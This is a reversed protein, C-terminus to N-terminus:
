AKRKSHRLIPVVEIRQDRSLVKEVDIRKDAPPRGAVGEVTRATGLLLQHLRNVNGFLAQANSGLCLGSAIARNVFEITKALLFEADKEMQQRDAKNPNPRNLRNWSLHVTGQHIADLTRRLRKMTPRDARARANTQRQVQSFDAAIMDTGKSKSQRFFELLLRSKLRIVDQAIQPFGWELNPLDSFLYRIDRFALASALMVMEYLVDELAREQDRVRPYM